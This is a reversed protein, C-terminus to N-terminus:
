DLWRAQLSLSAEFITGGADDRVQVSFVRTDGNAIEDRAIDPLVAIAAVRAQERSAFHQGKDDHTLRHGDNIDFYFRPM